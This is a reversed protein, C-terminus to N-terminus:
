EEQYAYLSFVIAYSSPSSGSKKNREAANKTNGALAALAPTMRIFRRRGSRQCVEARNALFAEGAEKRLMRWSIAREKNGLTNYEDGLERFLDEKDRFDVGAKAKQYLDDLISEFRADDHDNLQRYYGIWAWGWLPDERLYKEYLRYCEEVNEMDAYADAIDRRANEHFTNDRGSWRIQLIQENVRIEEEYLGANHAAMVTDNAWNGIQWDISEVGLKDTMDKERVMIEILHNWAELLKIASERSYDQGEPMASMFEAELTDAEKRTIGM